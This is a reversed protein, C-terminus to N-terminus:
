TFRVVYSRMHRVSVAKLMRVHFQVMYRIPVLPPCKHIRYHVKPKRLIRPIERSASFRNAEAPSQGLFYSLLYM